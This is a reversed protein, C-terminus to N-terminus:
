KSDLNDELRDKRRLKFVPCHHGGCGGDNKENGVGVMVGIAVMRVLGVLADM